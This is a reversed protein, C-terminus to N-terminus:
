VKRRPEKKLLRHSQIVYTMATIFLNPNLVCAILQIAALSPNLPDTDVKVCGHPLLPSKLRQSIGTYNGFAQISFSNLIRAYYWVYLIYNKHCLM